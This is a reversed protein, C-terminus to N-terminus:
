NKNYRGPASDYSVWYAGHTENSIGARLNYNEIQPDFLYTQGDIVIEVWGHVIANQSWAYGCTGVVATAEYGLARALFCFSAAFNYCDGKDTEFIKSAYAVANEHPMTKVTSPLAANRGLYQFDRVHEYCARLKEEQTMEDTTCAAITAAVQADLAEDGTTYAGSEDFCYDYRRANKLIVGTHTAFVVTDGVLHLADDAYIQGNQESVLYTFRGVTFLGPETVVAGDALVYQANGGAMHLGESLPRCSVSEDDWRETGDEGCAFSHGLAAEMIDYYAEHEPSVDLFVRSQLADIAERDPTRDLARNLMEVAQARTVCQTDDSEPGVWDLLAAYRMAADLTPPEQGDECLWHDVGRCIAALFDSRTIADYPRFAGDEDAPLLAAADSTCRYFWSDEPVDTFTTQTSAQVAFVYTLAKAAEARTLARDPFFYGDQGFMYATHREYVIEPQTAVAVPLAQEDAAPLVSQQAFEPAPEQSGQEACAPLCLAALVFALVLAARRQRYLRSRDAKWKVCVM